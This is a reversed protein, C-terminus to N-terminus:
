RWPSYEGFLEAHKNQYAAVADEKNDYCGLCYKKGDKKVMAQWKGNESRKYVGVRKQNQVNQASTVVRLNSWRNNLGDGDKHDVLVPWVGTMWYVALQHARYNIGLVGIELYKKGKITIESGAQRGAYLTNFSRNWYKGGGDDRPLHIFVGNDPDYSVADLLNSHDILDKKM